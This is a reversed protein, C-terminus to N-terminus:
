PSDPKTDLMGIREAGTYVVMSRDRLLGVLTCDFRRALDVALTTAASLAAVIPFRARIAKQVMEFSIRSSLMVVCSSTDIHNLMAYGIVKDLANHRGVDERVVLLRGKGDSLACAHAGRTMRSLTQHDSMQYQLEVIRGAEVTCGPQLRSLSVSLDEITQVGCIGCGTISVRSRATGGARDMRGAAAASISVTVVNETDGTGDQCFGITGIEDFSDVIGETLCFGAVLEVENGPTRMTVAYPAGNVRIELPEEAILFAEKEISVRDDSESAIVPRYHKQDSM